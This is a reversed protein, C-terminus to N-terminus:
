IIELSKVKFKTPYQRKLTLAFKYHFIHHFAKDGHIIIMKNYISKTVDQIIKIKQYICKRAM